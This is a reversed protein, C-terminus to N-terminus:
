VLMPPDKAVGMVEMCMLDVMYFILGYVAKM